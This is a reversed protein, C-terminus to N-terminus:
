NTGKVDTIKVTSIMDKIKEKMIDMVRKKYCFSIRILLENKEQPFFAYYDLHRDEEEREYFYVEWNIQPSNSHLINEIETNRPHRLGFGYFDKIKKKGTEDIKEFSIVFGIDGCGMGNRESNKVSFITSEASKAGILGQKKILTEGKRYEPYLEM